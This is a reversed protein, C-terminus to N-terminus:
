FPPWLENMLPAIEEVVHNADMARGHKVFARRQAERSIACAAYLVHQLEIGTRTKGGSHISYYTTLATVVGALVDGLGGCRKLGGNVACTLSATPTTITDTAGNVIIGGINLTALLTRSLYGLGLGTSSLSPCYTAILRHFEVINPTIIVSIPCM